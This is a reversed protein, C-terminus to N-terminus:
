ETSVPRQDEFANHTIRTVFVNAVETATSEEFLDRTFDLSWEVNEEPGDWPKGHSPCRLTAQCKSAVLGEGWGGHVTWTTSLRRQLTWAKPILLGLSCKITELCLLMKVTEVRGQRRGCQLQSSLVPEATVHVQGLECDFVEQPTGERHSSAGM